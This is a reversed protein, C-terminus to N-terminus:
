IQCYVTDSSQTKEQRHFPIKNVQMEFKHTLSIKGSHGPLEPVLPFIHKGLKSCTFMGILHNTATTTM